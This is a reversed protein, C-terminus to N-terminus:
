KGLNAVMALFDTESMEAAAVTAGAAENAKALAAKEAEKREAEKRAEILRLRAKVAPDDAGVAAATPVTAAPTAQAVPAVPAPSTKAHDRGYPLASKATASLQRSASSRENRQTMGFIKQVDEPDGSCETLLKIQEFTLRAGGVHALDTIEELAQNAKSENIPALKTRKVNQKRGGVDAEMMEQVVILEDDLGNRSIRKFNFWAGQDFDFADIGEQEQLAKIKEVLRNKNQFGIKLHGFEGAENMAALYFKSDRNHSELWMVVPAMMTKIQEPDVGEAKLKAEKAEANETYLSILDCEPCHQTIVKERDKEQICAFTKKFSKIPNKADPVSYGWHQAAYQLWKGSEALSHLPPMVRYINDTPKKEWKITWEPCRTFGTVLKAKGWGM